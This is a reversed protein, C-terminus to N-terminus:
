VSEYNVLQIKQNAIPSITSTKREEEELQLYNSLSPNLARLKCIRTPPTRQTGYQILALRVTVPVAYMASSCHEGPPCCNLGIYYGHFETRIPLPPRLQVQLKM